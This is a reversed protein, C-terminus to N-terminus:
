EVTYMGLNQVSVENFLTMMVFTNFVITFHQSPPSHLPAYRGSDVGFLRDGAFIMTFLVTLQYIAHGIINKMM